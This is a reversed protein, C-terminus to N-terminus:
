VFIFASDSLSLDTSVNQLTAIVEGRAEVGPDFILDADITGTGSTFFDLSYLDASGSLEIFDHSAEFDTILALDSEGNSLVDGDDYYVRTEDGLVFTDRGGSGTLTDVEGSGFGLGAGSSSPDVGILRDGGANGVLADDGLGGTLTDKGKGGRLNDDGAGGFINDRGKGGSVMDDGEGGDLTDKGNGGNLTDDGAEGLIRDAQAGGGLVDDGDGGLIDDSGQNGSVTDNGDGASILDNGSGGSIDDSGGLGQLIDDGGLGSITDPGTGGTLVDADETGTLDLSVIGFVVYSEGESSYSSGSEAFPAGIILDDAGDGNIDGASSVSYGSDDGSNSSLSSLAM